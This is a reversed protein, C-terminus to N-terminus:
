STGRGWQTVSVILRGRSDAAMSEAFAGGEGPAFTTVVHATVAAAAFATAPFGGFTGAALALVAVASTILSRRM